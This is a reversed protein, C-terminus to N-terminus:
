RSWVARGVSARRTKPDVEVVITRVAKEAKEAILQRLISWGTHLIERNLGSKARVGSGRQEVTGRASRTMARGNLRELVITNRVHWCTGRKVGGVAAASAGRSGSRRLVFRAGGRRSV